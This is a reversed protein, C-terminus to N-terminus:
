WRPKAIRGQSGAGSLEWFHGFPTPRRGLAAKSLCICSMSSKFRRIWQMQQQGQSLSKTESAISPIAWRPGASGQRSRGMGPLHALHALDSCRSGAPVRVPERGTVIQGCDWALGQFVTQPQTNRPFKRGPTQEGLGWGLDVLVQSPIGLVRM